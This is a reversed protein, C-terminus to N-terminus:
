QEGKVEGNGGWEEGFSIDGVTRAKEVVSDRELARASSKTRAASSDMAARPLITIPREPPDSGLIKAEFSVWSGQLDWTFQACVKKMKASSLHVARSSGSELKRAQWVSNNELTGIGLSLMKGM